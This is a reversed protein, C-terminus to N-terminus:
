RGPTAPLALSLYREGDRMMLRRECFEDLARRVSNVPVTVGSLEIARTVTVPMDSAAKYLSALPGEFNYGLREPGRGDVIHLLDHAYSFTLIPKERRAASVKEPSDESTITPAKKLAGSIEWAHKWAMMANTLPVYVSDDLDTPMKYDWVRAVKSLDVNKPFVYAYGPAPHRYEVPFAELNEFMPAFREMRVRGWGHPPLLHVLSPALRTQQAFDEETEGAFGWLMNWGIAIDYYTAWRLTNVNQIGTTGKKMLQLVHSNLSEIGPQLEVVGAQRLRKLQQRTLNAKTEYFLKYDNGGDVLQPFLTTLYENDVINDMSEFNFVHYRRALEALEKAVRTPSKSRFRMAAGNVGCFTCHHKQGWWCGRASEYPLVAHQTRGGIAEVRKFFEDYRPVPLQDLDELLPATGGYVLRGDVRSAVGPIKDTPKGEALAVLLEPFALDGEGIVAFDICPTSRTLELGMDGDFNAGGFVTKIHPYKEKIRRALAFSAITQHFVSSFGVVKFHSWDIETMMSDLFAPVVENRIRTAALKNRLAVMPNNAKSRPVGFQEAVADPFEILFKEDLDPAEERFAEKSFFWDGMMSGHVQSLADYIPIGVRTAFDLMLHFTETPFGHSLAIEGLLGLQISPNRLWSFPMSVLAVPFDARLARERDSLEAVNGTASTVYPKRAPATPAIPLKSKRAQITSATTM